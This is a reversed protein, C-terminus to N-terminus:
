VLLDVKHPYGGPEIKFLGQDTIRMEPIVPLSMFSLAAFPRALAVELRDKCFADLAKELAIVDKASKDSMLGAIPLPLAVIEGDCVGVQGGGLNQIVEACRLIDADNTGVIVMNHSDHGVSSGVAGRKMGYGRVFGITFRGSALHRDFVCVKLLDHDPSAFANGNEVVAQCIAGRTLIQGPVLEIVRIKADDQAPVQLQAIEPLKVNMTPRLQPIPADNKAQTQGKEYVVQGQHLVLDPTFEVLDPAIVIDSSACKFFGDISIGEGLTVSM